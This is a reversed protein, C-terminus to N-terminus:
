EIEEEKEYVLSNSKSLNVSAPILQLNWPVHLGCFNEGQLPHIHDVHLPEDCLWRLEVATDYYWQIQKKHEISLWPPTAQLQRARRFAKNSRVQEPNRAKWNRTYKRAKDLNRKQYRQRAARGVEPRKQKYAAQYEKRYGPSLLYRSKSYSRCCARCDGRYYNRDRYFEEIPLLSNCKNCQKQNILM